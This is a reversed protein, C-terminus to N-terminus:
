VGDLLRRSAVRVLWAGPDHPTGDRPWQVAAAAAAEQLADECDALDGHRRLLAALAHPSERRWVDTFGPGDPAPGPRSM